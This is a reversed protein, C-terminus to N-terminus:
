LPSGPKKQFGRVRRCFGQAGAKAPSLPLQSARLSLQSLRGDEPRGASKQPRPRDALRDARRGARVAAPVLSAHGAGGPGRLCQGHLRARGGAAAGIRGRTLAAAPSAYAVTVTQMVIRNKMAALESAAQDMEGQVRTIEQEVQLTDQLSDARRSMLETLRAREAARAAQAAETDIVQTSLDDGETAAEDIRGGLDKADAEARTRFVRMWAPTARLTLEATAKDDGEASANAALVQCQDSGARECAEQHSEMLPRVQDVPVVLGLKYALALMPAQPAAAAQAAHTEPGTADDPAGVQAAGVGEGSQTAKAPGADPASATPPPKTQTTLSQQKCAVTLALASVAILSVAKRM